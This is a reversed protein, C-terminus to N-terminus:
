EQINPDGVGEVLGGVWEDDYNRHFRYLLGSLSELIAVYKEGSILYELGGWLAITEGDYGVDSFEDLTFENIKWELKEKDWEVISLSFDGSQFAFFNKQFTCNITHFTITPDELYQGEINEISQNVSIPNDLGIWEDGDWYFAELVLDYDGNKWLVVSYNDQSYVKIKTQSDTCESPIGITKEFNNAITKRSYKYTVNADMETRINKIFGKHKIINVPDTDDNEEFYDYKLYSFMDDASNLYKIGRLLRKKMNDTTNVFSIDSEDTNYDLITKEILNGDKLLEVYSLYQTEFKEQYADPEGAEIHNDQYEYNEKSGYSLDITYGSNNTIMDLYVVKTYPLTGNGVIETEQFYSYNITKNWQDTSSSLYWATAFREQNEAEISSGIWNGWFITWEIANANDGYIFKTNKTDLLEWKDITKYFKLLLGNEEEPLFQYYDSTEEDYILKNSAGNMILYFTDDAFAKTGKHVRVIKDLHLNWGLGLVGTPVDENTYEVYNEVGANSYFAPLALEDSKILPVSFSVDGSAKNIKDSINQMLEASISKASFNNDESGYDDEAYTFLVHLLLVILLITLFSKNKM